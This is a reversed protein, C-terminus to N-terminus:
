SRPDLRHRLTRYRTVLSWARSGEIEKARSEAREARIQLEASEAELRALAEGHGAGARREEDLLRQLRAIESRMDEMQRASVEAVARASDAHATSEAAAVDRALLARELELRIESAEHALLAAQRRAIELAEIRVEPGAGSANESVVSM